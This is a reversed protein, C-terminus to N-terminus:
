GTRPLQPWVAAAVANGVDCAHTTNGDTTHVEVSAIEVLDDTAAGYTNLGTNVYCWASTSGATFKSDITARGALQTSTDTSTDQVTPVDGVLFDVYVTDVASGSQTPQWICEHMEPFESFPANPIGAASLASDPVLMCPDILGVSGAPYTLHRIAGDAIRAAANKALADVAPCLNATSNPSTANAAIMLGDSDHLRLFDSCFGPVRPMSTQLTMGRPLTAITTLDADDAQSQTELPGVDAAGITGNSLRISVACDDLADAPALSGHLDAPLMNTNVLSCPDVTDAQGFTQTMSIPGTDAPNDEASGSVQVDCGAVSLLVTVGLVGGLVGWRAM